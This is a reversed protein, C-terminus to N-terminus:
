LNGAASGVSIGAPRQHRPLRSVVARFKGRSTRELAAVREIEVRVGRLRERTIRRRILQEDEQGFGDTAVVRVLLRDLEEQVIQGELVHPLDIFIGHFRVMETGDPGIVADELRGVLEQLVPLHNRGCSCPKDAWVGVDGVEYRVLPQADNTLGTCVLRGEVGPPVPRDFEDLIEVIGFDPSIHLNGQECETALACQEVTGYEEYARAGFARQIVTKMEGTLKESSLVIADPRYDLKLNQELMLRALAYHSYAYGTLLRPRYRNFGEVYNAVNQPSIHYATFYVQQEAFNYRYLPGQSMASPVIMRGGLTSRPLRISASAWAFSRVERAALFRRHGDATCIALIPTGTSGSTYYRCLDKKRINTAVFSYPDLRVDMKSTTPLRALDGACFHALDARGIGAERWKRSYHPVHEFAHLLLAQLQGDVYSRMEPASYNDRERFGDVYQQYRGGMRERRYQYGYLTIWLNQAWVPVYPYLLEWFHSVTKSGRTYRLGGCEVPAGM